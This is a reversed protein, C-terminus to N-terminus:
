TYSSKRAELLYYPWIPLLKNPLLGWEVHVEDTLKKFEEIPPMSAYLANSKLLRRGLRTDRLSPDLGEDVVVIKAGTKAVRFMEKIALEKEEFTNIGGVHFVADFCNDKFPLHSANARILIINRKDRSLKVAYRLMGFSIDIGYVTGNDGIKKILYPINKGTGTAIDLVTDGEKIELLEVWRRRARDETGLTFMPIIRHFLSFYHSASGNYFKMWRYDSGFILESPLLDIVGERISYSHNCGICKLTNRTFELSNGCIPCMLIELTEERIYSM